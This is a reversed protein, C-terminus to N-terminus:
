IFYIISNRSNYLIVKSKPKVVAEKNYTFLLFPPTQTL